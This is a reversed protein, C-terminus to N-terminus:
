TLHPTPNTHQLDHQLHTWIRDSIISRHKDLRPRHTNSYDTSSAPSIASSAADPKEPPRAKTSANPSTPRPTPAPAPAPSPSRTCRATSNATAAATSATAPTRGAPPKSHPSAPSPALRSRKRCRRPTLRALPGLRSRKRIPTELDAAEATLAKIRRALSRLAQKTAALEDTHGAPLRFAGCAAVQSATSLGSLQDRLEVPATVILAKLECIAAVRARQAGRRTTELVRLAERDGRARPTAPTARGLTERAARRADLADAKAGDATATTSPHGFEVVLEGAAALHRAVGAGYSGTGEVAWARATAPTCRDAWAVLEEYGRRTTEFGATALEAGGTAEVVSATVRDRDPDIGIVHEVIDALVIRRREDHRTPRVPLPGGRCCQSPHPTESKARRIAPTETQM